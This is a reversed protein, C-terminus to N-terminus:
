LTQAEPDSVVPYAFDWFQEDRKDSAVEEFSHNLREFEVLTLKVKRNEADLVTIHRRGIDCIPGTCSWNSQYHRAMDGVEFVRDYKRSRSTDGFLRVLKGPDVKMNRGAPLPGSGGLLM